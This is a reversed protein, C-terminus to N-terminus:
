TGVEIKYVEVQSLLGNRNLKRIDHIKMMGMKTMVKGSAPNSSLHEAIIVSISFKEFAKYLLASAAQTCYGKGWFEHGIWYGLEAKDDSISVLSVTGVLQFSPKLTVAYSVGTRNLWSNKQISIWQKALNESYPHPINLTTEAVRLDGALKTVVPSDALTYPRLILNETEIIPQEM